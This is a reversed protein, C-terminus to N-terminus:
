SAGETTSTMMIIHQFAGSHFHIMKGECFLGTSKDLIQSLFKSNIPIFLPDGKYKTRMTKEVFGLDNDAKVMVEGDEMKIKVFKGSKDLIDSALMVVSDVLSKLEPPFEIHAYKNMNEFVGIMKELPFSGKLLSCSFTVDDKTRFHGWRGDTCYEIIDFKALEAAEKAIIFLEDEIASDMYFMSSRATDLSYCRDDKIMVCANVGRTLDPCASFACLSIGEAFTKPLPKWDTMGQKLTEIIEPLTNQDDGITVMSATTSKSRVKIKNDVVALTIETDSIGDILRFFEEGKVSFPTEFEFPHSICIKDNFTSVDTGSFIFHCAQPIFERKALGPRLESLINRLEARNIKM